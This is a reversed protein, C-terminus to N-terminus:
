RESALRAISSGNMDSLTEELYGRAQWTPLSGTTQPDVAIRRLFRNGETDIMEVIAVIGVTRVDGIMSNCGEQQCYRWIASALEQEPNSELDFDFDTM